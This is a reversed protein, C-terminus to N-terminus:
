AELPTPVSTPWVEVCESPAVADGPLAHAVGPGNLTLGALALSLAAALGARVRKQVIAGDM